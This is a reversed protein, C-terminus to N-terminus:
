DETILEYNYVKVSTIINGKSYDTQAIDSYKMNPEINHRTSYAVVYGNSYIGMIGVTLASYAKNKTNTVTYNIKLTGQEDQNWSDVKIILGNNTSDRPSETFVGSCSVLLLSFFVLIMVMSKRVM